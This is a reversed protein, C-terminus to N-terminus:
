QEGWTTFIEMFVVVVGAFILFTNGYAWGTILATYGVLRGFMQDNTLM